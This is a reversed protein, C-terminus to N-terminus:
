RAARPLRGLLPASAHVLGCTCTYRPNPCVNVGIVARAVSGADIFHPLYGGREGPVDTDTVAYGRARGLTDRKIVTGLRHGPIVVIDRPQLGSDGM